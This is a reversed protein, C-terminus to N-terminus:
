AGPQFVTAAAHPPPGSSPADSWHRDGEPEPEEEYDLPKAATRSSLPPQKFDAWSATSSPGQGM